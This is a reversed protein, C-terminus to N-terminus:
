NPRVSPVLLRFSRLFREADNKYEEPVMCSVLYNMNGSQVVLTTSEAEGPCHTGKVEVEQGNSMAPLVSHSVVACNSDHLVEKLGREFQDPFQRKSRIAAVQFFGNISKQRYVTFTLINGKPGHPVPVIQVNEPFDVSFGDTQYIYTRWLQSSPRRLRKQWDAPSRSYDLRTWVHVLGIDFGSAVVISLEQQGLADPSAALVRKAIGDAFIEPDAPVGRHEVTVILSKKTYAPLASAEVRTTELRATAMLVDPAWYAAASVDNLADFNTSFITGFPQADPGFVLTALPIVGPSIWLLITVIVLHDRRIRSQIAHKVSARTVVFTGAALDHVVQRTRWNALYLYISSGIIGFAIFSQIAFVVLVTLNSKDLLLFSLDYGMLYIPVLYISARWSSRLVSIGLGDRGVVRIGLALKGLTGGALRSNLLGYYALEFPMGILRGESGLNTLADYFIMGFAFLFAGLLISDLVAAAIRRWFGAFEAARVDGIPTSMGVGPPSKLVM